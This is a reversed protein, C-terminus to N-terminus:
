SSSNRGPPSLPRPMLEFGYKKKREEPDVKVVGSSILNVAGEEVDLEFKTYTDEVWRRQRRSLPENPNWVLRDRMQTFIKLTEEDDHDELCEIVKDLLVGDSLQVKDESIDRKM